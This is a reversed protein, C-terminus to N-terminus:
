KTPEPIRGLVVELSFQGSCVSCAFDAPPEGRLHILAADRVAYEAALEAATDLDRVLNMLAEELVQLQRDLNPMDPVGFCMSEAVQQAISHRAQSLWTFRKQRSENLEALIALEIELMRIEM